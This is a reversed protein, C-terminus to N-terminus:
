GPFYRLVSGNGFWLVTGKGCVQSSGKDGALVECGFIGGLAGYARHIEEHLQCLLIQLWVFLGCIPKRFLRERSSQEEHVCQKSRNRRSCYKFM